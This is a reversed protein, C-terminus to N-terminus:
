WMDAFLSRLRKRFASGLFQAHLEPVYHEEIPENFDPAVEAKEPEPPLPSSHKRRWRLFLFGAISLAVIVVVIPVAIKVANASNSGSHTSSTTGTNLSGATIDATTETGAGATTTTTIGAITVTAAGGAGGSPVSAVSIKPYTEAVYGDAAQVCYGSAVSWQSFCYKSGDCTVIDTANLAAVVETCARQTECCTIRDTPFVSNSCYIEARSAACQEAPSADDTSSM